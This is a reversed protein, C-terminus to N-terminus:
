LDDRTTPVIPSGDDLEALLGFVVLLSAKVKDPLQRLKIKHICMKRLATHVISWHKCVTYFYPTPSNAGVEANVLVEEIAIRRPSRYTVLFGLCFIRVLDRLRMWHLKRFFVPTRCINLREVKLWYIGPM